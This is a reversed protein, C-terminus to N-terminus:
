AVDKQVTGTTPAAPATANPAAVQTSQDSDTTPAVADPTNSVASRKHAKRTLLLQKFEAIVVNLGLFLQSFDKSTEVMANTEITSFLKRLVTSSNGFVDVVEEGAKKKKLERRDNVLSILNTEIARIEDLYVKLGLTQMAATLKTDADMKSFLMLIRQHKVFNNVRVFGGFFLEIEPIALAIAEKLHEPASQRFGRAFSLVAIVKKERQLRAADIDASFPNRKVEKSFKNAEALSAEALNYVGTLGLDSVNSKKVEAVVAAAFQLYEEKTLDAINLSLIKMNEMGYFYKQPNIRM